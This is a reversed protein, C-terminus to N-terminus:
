RRSQLVRSRAFEKNISKVMESLAAAGSKLAVEVKMEM